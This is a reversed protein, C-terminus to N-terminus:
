NLAATIRPRDNNYMILVKQGPNYIADIGQVVSILDTKTSSVSTAGKVEDDVSQTGVTVNTKNTISQVEAVYKPNIRVVYEMGKASSLKDQIMAGAAAGAIAGGGTALSNGAGKGFANGGLGGLLAGGLMGMTNNELKDNGKVIVQRASIVTGEIVKGTVAGSTYVNSDLNRECGTLALGLISIITLLKSTTKM